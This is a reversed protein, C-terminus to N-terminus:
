VELELKRLIKDVKAIPLSIEFYSYISSQKIFKFCDSNQKMFDIRSMSNTQVLVKNNKICKLICHPNM